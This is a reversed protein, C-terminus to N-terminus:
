KALDAATFLGADIGAQLGAVYRQQKANPTKTNPDGLSKVYAQRDAAKMYPASFAMPDLSNAWQSKWATYQQPAIGMKQAVAPAAVDMARLGQVVTLMQVGAAHVTQSTPRAHNQIERSADTNLGLGHSEASLIDNSWKDFEAYNILGNKDAQPLPFGYTDAVSRLNQLIESGKGTQAGDLAARAQDFRTLTKKLEPVAAQDDQYAKASAVMNDAQGPALGVQGIAGGAGGSAGPYRGNRPVGPQGGQTPSGGPTGQIPNGYADFLSGKPTVTQIGTQPNTTQVLDTKQGPTLGEAIAGRTEMPGGLPSQQTFVTAPGTNTANIQGLYMNLGQETGNLKIGADKMVQLNHAPDDTLQSAVSTIEQFTEPTKALPVFDRQIAQLAYQRTLPAKGSAADAVLPVLANAIPKNQELLSAARAADLGTDAAHNAVQQAYTKQFQDVSDAAGYTADPDSGIQAIAKGTDLVGTTPDINAQVARGQATQSAMKLGLMRNNLLQGQLATINGITAGVDSQPAKNGLIISSDLQTDPM